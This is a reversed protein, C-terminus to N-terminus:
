DDVVQIAAFDHCCDKFVVLPPPSLMCAARQVADAVHKFMPTKTLHLVKLSAVVCSPLATTEDPSLSICVLTLTELRKLGALNHIFQEVDAAEHCPVLKVYLSTLFPSSARIHLPLSFLSEFHLNQITLSSLMSFKAFVSPQLRPAGVDSVIM